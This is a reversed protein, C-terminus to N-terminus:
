GRSLLSARLDILLQRLLAMRKRGLIAEWEQEVERITALAVPLTSKGRKTLRIMKARRDVPDPIREVYGRAELHAVLEAMSQKTILAREALDTVRCGNGIFQFVKGHAPRMDGFGAAEMRAQIRAQIWMEPDRLLAGLNNRYYEGPASGSAETRSM